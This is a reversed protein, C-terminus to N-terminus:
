KGHPMRAWPGDPASCKGVSSNPNNLRFHAVDFLFCSTGGGSQPYRFRWLDASIRWYALPQSGFVSYAYAFAAGREQTGVNAPRHAQYGVIAGVLTSVLIIAAIKVLCRLPPSSRSLAEVHGVPLGAYVTRTVQPNSRAGLAGAGFSRSPRHKTRRRGLIQFQEVSEATARALTAKRVADSM